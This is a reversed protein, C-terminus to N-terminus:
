LEVGVGRADGDGGSGGGGGDRLAEGVEEVYPAAERFMCCYRLTEELRGREAANYFGREGLDHANGENKM